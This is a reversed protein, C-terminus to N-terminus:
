HENSEVIELFGRPDLIKIPFCIEPPFDKINGTILVEANGAKAAALYPEDGPDPLGVPNPQIDPFVSIEHLIRIQKQFIKCYQAHKTRIAVREFEDLIPQSLVNTHNRIVEMVVSRCTGKTRAASVLVNCDLM